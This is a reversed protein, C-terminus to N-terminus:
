PMPIPARATPGCLITITNSAYITTFTGINVQADTHIDATSNATNSGILSFPVNAIAIASM